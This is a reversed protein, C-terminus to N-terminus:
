SRLQLKRAVDPLHHTYPWKCASGNAGARQVAGKGKGNRTKGKGTLATEGARGHPCARQILGKGKDNPARVPIAHSGRQVRADVAMGGRRTSFCFISEGKRRSM